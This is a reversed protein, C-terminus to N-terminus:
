VEEEKFQRERGKGGKRSNKRKRILKYSDKIVVVCLGKAM